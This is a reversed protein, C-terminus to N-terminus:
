NSNAYEVSFSAGDAGLQSASALLSLQQNTMHVKSYTFNSITGASNNLDIQCQNFTLSGFNALRSIEGNVLSREVIWEGSACTSNYNFNQNFVQGNTDDSIRISWELTEPDVLVISASIRDGPHVVMDKIRTAYEPLLEYWANYREKGNVVNHETGV